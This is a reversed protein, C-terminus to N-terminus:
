LCLVANSIAVHSSNLRTRKRDKENGPAILQEAFSASDRAKDQLFHLAQGVASCRDILAKVQELDEPRAQRIYAPHGDKLLIPGDLYPAQPIPLPHLEHFQGDQRM